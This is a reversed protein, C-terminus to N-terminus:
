RVLKRRRIIYYLHGGVYKEPTDIIPKAIIFPHNIPGILDVVIAVKKGSSDYLEINPIVKERAEIVFLKSKTYHLVRGM